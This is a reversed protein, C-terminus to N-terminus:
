KEVVIKYGFKIAALDYMFATVSTKLIISDGTIYINNISGANAECLRETKDWRKNTIDVFDHITTIESIKYFEIKIEENEIVELDIKKTCGLFPLVLLCVIVYYM